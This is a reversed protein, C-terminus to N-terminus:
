TSLIVGNETFLLPRVSNVSTTKTPIAAINQGWSWETNSDVISNSDGIKVVRSVGSGIRLDSLAIYINGYVDTFTHPDFRADMPYTGDNPMEIQTPLNYKGTTANYLFVLIAKSGGITILLYNDKREISGRFGFITNLFYNPEFDISGSTFTATSTEIDQDLSGTANKDWGTWYVDVNFRAYWIEITSDWTYPRTKKLIYYRDSDDIDFAVTGQIPAYVLNYGSYIGKTGVKLIEIEILNTLSSGVDVPVNPNKFQVCSNTGAIGNSTPDFSTDIKLGVNSEILNSLEATLVFSLIGRDCTIVRSFTSLDYVNGKQRIRFKSPKVNNADIGASWSKLEHSFVLYLVGSDGLQRNYIAKVLKATYSAPIVVGSSHNTDYAFESAVISVLDYNQDVEIIRSEDQDLFLINGNTKKKIDTVYGAIGSSISNLEQLVTKPLVNQGNFRKVANSWTDNYEIVQRDTGYIINNVKGFDGSPSSITVIGDSSVTLNQESRASQWQEQTSLVYSGSTTNSTYNITISNLVPAIKKDSTPLLVVRLAISRTAQFSTPFDSGSVRFDSFSTDIDAYVGGVQLESGKNTYIPSKRYDADGSDNTGQIGNRKIQIYILSDNLETGIWSMSTFTVPDPFNIIIDEIKNREIRDGYGVAGSIHIRDIDSLMGTATEGSLEVKRGQPWYVPGVLGEKKNFGDAVEAYFYVGTVNQIAVSFTPATLTPMHTGEEIEATPVQYGCLYVLNSSGGSNDVIQASLQAQAPIVNTESILSDTFPKASTSFFRYTTGSGSPQYKYFYRFTNLSEDQVTMEIILDMNHDFSWDSDFTTSIEQTLTIYIFNDLTMDYGDTWAAYLLGKDSVTHWDNSGIKKEFVGSIFSYMSTSGGNSSNVNISRKNGGVGSYRAADDAAIIIFDNKDAVTDGPFPLFLEGSNPSSEQQYQDGSISQALGKNHIILDASNANLTVVTSTLTIPFASTYEFGYGYGYQNAFFSEFDNQQTWDDVGYGFLYGSVGIVDFYDLGQGYGYGYGYSSGAQTISVYDPDYTGSKFEDVTNISVQGIEQAPVFKGRVRHNTFDLEATTANIDIFTNPDLLQNNDIGPIVAAFNIMYDDVDAWVHKLSLMLQILNATMLDGFLLRNVSQLKEILSDIEEHSLTGIDSLDSHSLSFRDKSIIGSTIKSADIDEINATSLVGKVHNFLDIKSPEGPAGTHVHQSIINLVYRLLSLEKRGSTAGTDISKVKGNSDVTVKGLLLYVDSDYSATSSFFEAIATYPTSGLLRGYVYNVLTSGSDAATFDTIGTNDTTAAAVSSIVGSGPTLLVGADNDPDLEIEWGSIVGNGLFTFLAELQRDIALFRTREVIETLPEGEQVWPLRYVPSVKPM